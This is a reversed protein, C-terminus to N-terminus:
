ESLAVVAAGCHCPDLVTNLCLNTFQVWFCGKNVTRRVPEVKYDIIHIIYRFYTISNTYDLFDYLEETFTWLPSCQYWIYRKQTLCSPSLLIFGNTDKTLVKLLYKVAQSIKLHCRSTFGSLICM